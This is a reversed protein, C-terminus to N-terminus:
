KNQQPPPQMQAQQMSMEKLIAQQQEPSASQFAQREVPNLSSILSEQQQVMQEEEQKEIDRLLQEKYPVYNKPVYKLFQKFSILGGQLFQNLSDIVYQETYQSAPGVDIKLKLDYDVYDTGRFTITEEKGEENLSSMLRAYKYKRKYFDEYIRVCEEIFRKYRGKIGDIPVSAAQQLLSIARANMQGSQNLEGTSSENAGLLNKTYQMFNETLQQAIPSIPGPNLYQLGFGNGKSTDEIM